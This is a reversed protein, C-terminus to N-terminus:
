QPRYTVGVKALNEILADRTVQGIRQSRLIGDKDIFFTTPLGAGVRYHDAVLAESDLVAPYKAKFIELIGSAKERSELYDVGLVVVQDGLAAYLDDFEPIEAKCPGCWSAYWNLVVARGRYDSLKRVTTGDRVDILAFDPALEGEKPRSPVLPGLGTRRVSSTPSSSAFARAFRGPTSIRWTTGQQRLYLTERIASDKEGIRVSGSVRVSAWGAENNVVTTSLDRVVARASGGPQFEGATSGFALFAAAPDEKLDGDLLREAEVRDNKEVAAYYQRVITQPTDGGGGSGGSFFLFAGVGGAALIAVALLALGPLRSRRPAPEPNAERPAEM